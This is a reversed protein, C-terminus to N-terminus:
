RDEELDDPWFPGGAAPARKGAPILYPRVRCRCNIWERLPGGRDHPHALGNGFPEGFRVIQRHLEEHSDRVRDDLEAIWQHYDVGLDRETAVAGEQQAANIETRAIREAEHDRLGDFVTDLEAAADDIGLGRRYSSTLNGMVDGAVRDMTQQSATFTHERLTEAVAESVEDFAVGAGQRQLEAVVRNGGRRGAELGEDLLAEALEEDYSRILRRVVDRDRPDAPLRGGLEDLVDRRVDAFLGALRRALRREARTQWEPLDAAAAALRRQREAAAAAAALRAAAAARAARPRRRVGLRVTPSPTPADHSM